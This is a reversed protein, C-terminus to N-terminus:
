HPSEYWKEELRREHILAWAAGAFIKIKPSIRVLEPDSMDGEARIVVNLQDCGQSASLIERAHNRAEAFTEYFSFSYKKAPKIPYESYDHLKIVPANVQSDQGAKKKPPPRRKKKANGRDGSPQGKSAAQPRNDGGSRQSQNSRKEM